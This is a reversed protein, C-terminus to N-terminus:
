REGFSFRFASSSRLPQVVPYHRTWSRRHAALCSLKAVIWGPTGNRYMLWAFFPLALIGAGMPIVPFRRRSPVSGVQPIRQMKRYGYCAVYLGCPIGLLTIIGFPRGLATPPDTLDSIGSGVSFVAMGIGCAVQVKPKLYGDDALLKM